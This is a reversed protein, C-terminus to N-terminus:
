LIYPIASSIKAEIRNLKVINKTKSRAKINLFKILILKKIEHHANVNGIAEADKAIINIYEIVCFIKKIYKEYIKITKVVSITAATNSCVIFCINLFSTQM